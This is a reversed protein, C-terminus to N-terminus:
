YAPGPPLHLNVGGTARRLVLCLLRRGGHSESVGGSALANELTERAESNGRALQTLAHSATYRLGEAPHGLYDLLVACLTHNRGGAVLLAEVLGKVDHEWDSSPWCEGWLHDELSSLLAAVDSADGAGLEILGQVAAAHISSNTVKLAARLTATAEADKGVLRLLATAAVVQRKVDHSWLQQRLLAIVRHNRTGTRGLVELIPTLGNEQLVYTVIRSSAAGVRGLAHAAEIQTQLACAACSDPGKSGYQAVLLLADVIAPDGLHLEAVASIAGREWGYRVARALATAVRPGTDGCRALAEFVAQQSGKPHEDLADLLAAVVDPGTVGLRTLADAAWWRVQGDDDHLAATLADVAEPLAIDLKGLDQLIACRAAPAEAVRLRQLLSRVTAQVDSIDTWASDTEHEPQLGNLVGAAAQQIAHSPSALCGQLADIVEPGAHKLRALGWELADQAIIPDDGSACSVLAAVAQPDQEALYALARAAARRARPEALRLRQRLVDVVVSGTAGVVLLAQVASWYPNNGQCFSAPSWRVRKASSTDDHLLSLLADVIERDRVGLAILTAAAEWRTTGDDDQLCSRLAPVVVDPYVRGVVRLWDAGWNLLGKRELPDRLVEGSLSASLIDAISGDPKLHRCVYRLAATRVLSDEDHLCRVVAATGDTRGVTLLDLADLASVRIQNDSDNLANHLAAVIEPSAVGVEGLAATAARRVSNDEDRSRRLLAAVIAPTSLEFLGVVTTASRRVAVDQDELCRYLTAVCSADIDERDVDGLLSVARWRESLEAREIYELLVDRVRHDTAGLRLLVGAVPLRNGLPLRDLHAYLTAIARPDDTKSEGLRWSVHARVYPDPDDLCTALLYGLEPLDVSLQDLIEEARVNDPELYYEDHPDDSEDRWNDDCLADLDLETVHHASARTQAEECARRYGAVTALLLRVIAGALPQGHLARIANGREEGGSLRALWERAEALTLVDM